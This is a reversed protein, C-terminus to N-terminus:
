WEFLARQFSANLIQSLSQFKRQVREIHDVPALSASVAVCVKVTQRPLLMNDDIVGQYLLAFRFFDHAYQCVLKPM